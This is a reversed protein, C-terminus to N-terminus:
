ENAEKQLSVVEENSFGTVRSVQELALNMNLLNSVIESMGQPPTLSHIQSPHRFNRVEATRLINMITTNGNDYAIMWATQGDADYSYDRLDLNAGANALIRVIEVNKNLAAIMLANRTNVCFICTKWQTFIRQQLDLNAMAEVLVRVTDTCNGHTAAILATQQHSFSQKDIDAQAELLLEVVDTHCNEAALILSTENNANTLDVNAKAEILISVIETHGNESASMLARSLHDHLGNSILYTVRELDGKSAAELLTARTKHNHIREPPSAQAIFTTITILFVSIPKLLPNLYKRM